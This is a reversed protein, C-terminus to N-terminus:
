IIVALWKFANPQSLHSSARKFRCFGNGLKESRITANRFSEAPNNPDKWQDMPRSGCGLPGAQVPSLIDTATSLSRGGDLARINRSPRAM